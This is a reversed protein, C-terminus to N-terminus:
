PRGVAVTPINLRNVAVMYKCICGYPFSLELFSVIIQDFYLNYQFNTFQVIIYNFFHLQFTSHYLISLQFLLIYHLYFVLLILYFVFFLFLRVFLGFFLKFYLYFLFKSYIFIHFITCYVILYNLNLPVCFIFFYQWLEM